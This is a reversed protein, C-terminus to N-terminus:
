GAQRRHYPYVAVDAADVQWGQIVSRHVFM